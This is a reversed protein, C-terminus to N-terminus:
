ASGPNACITKAHVEMLPAEWGMMVGNKEADVLRDGSYEVPQSLYDENAAKSVDSDEKLLRLVMEARIGAQVLAEYADVHDGNEAYDGATYNGIDLTNWPIGSELVFNVTDVDGSAAAFHLATRGTEDTVFIEAGQKVLERARESDGAYCATLLQAEKSPGDNELQQQQLDSM